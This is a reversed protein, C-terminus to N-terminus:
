DSQELSSIEWKTYSESLKLANQPDFIASEFWPIVVEERIRFWQDPLPKQITLFHNEPIKGRISPFKDIIATQNIMPISSLGDLFGFVTLGETEWRGILSKQTEPELLWAMFEEASGGATNNKIIGGWTVAQIPITRDGSFYRIDLNQKVIDPISIWYHFDVRAFRIRNEALLVEDPIYRYHRDFEKALEVNGVSVSLWDFLADRVEGFITDYDYMNELQGGSLRFNLWLLDIYSFPNWSPSFGLRTLRGSDNRSVFDTEIARMDREHVVVQDPLKEMEERRGMIVPLKFALPILMERGRGDKPGALAPYAAATFEMPALLTTMATSNIDDGIVLDPSLKKVAGTDISPIHRFIIRVDENSVAFMEAAIALETKDSLIYLIDNSGNCATFAILLLGAKLIRIM